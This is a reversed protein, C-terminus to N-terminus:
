RVALGAAVAVPLAGMAFNVRAAAVAPNADDDGDDDEDEDADDEDQSRDNSGPAPTGGTNGGNGTAGPPPVSLTSDPDARQITVVSSTRPARVASREDEPHLFLLMAQVTELGSLQQGTGYNDNYDGTYWRSGCTVGDDGGSCSRAAAEASAILYPGIFSRTYPAMIATQLLWRSLYAKFSLQDTNCNNAIECSREYMIDTANDFPTFFLQSTRQLLGTTREEWVTSGNTYNYLMATGYLLVAPNYSWRTHDLESCNLTSDSGDFVTFSDDILGIGSMWDWAKEALDVYTSNGTYRALRAAIQFFAGNSISNKYDYGANEEFVQWRLGGNCTEEDWRRVMTNFAAEALDLWQPQNEPPDPFDYEAATLAAIAWFAQDDNGLSAFYAPPMFNNDPGTQAQLAQSITPNYSSDNTYAWYNIMGGWIAGAEWWYHPSPFTGIASAPTDSGNNQYWSM